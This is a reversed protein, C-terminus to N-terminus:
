LNNLVTPEACDYIITHKFNLTLQHQLRHIHGKHGRKRMKPQSLKDSSGYPQMKLWTDDFILM